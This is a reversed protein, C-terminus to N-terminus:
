CAVGTNTIAVSGSAGGFSNPVACVLVEQYPMVSVGQSSLYGNPNGMYTVYASNNGYNNLRHTTLGSGGGSGSDTTASTTTVNSCDQGAIPASHNTIVNNYQFGPETSSVIKFWVGGSGAYEDDNM